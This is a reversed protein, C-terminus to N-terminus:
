SRAVITSVDAGCVCVCVVRGVVRCSVVRCARWRYRERQGLHHSHSHPRPSASHLGARQLQPLLGHRGLM